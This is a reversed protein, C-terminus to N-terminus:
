SAKWLSRAREWQQRDMDMGLPRYPDGRARAEDDHAFAEDIDRAIVNRCRDNLSTWCGMLWDVCDSVIYSQRGLCYRVAAIAMLDGRGWWPGDAGVAWRRLEGLKIVERLRTIEEAAEAYLGNPLPAADILRDVIDPTM